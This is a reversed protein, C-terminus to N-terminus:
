KKCAKCRTLVKNSPTTFTAIQGVAGCKACTPRIEADVEEAIETMANNSEVTRSLEKQLRSVQKRLHRNESKYHSLEKKPHESQQRHQSRHSM